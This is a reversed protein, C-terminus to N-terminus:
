LSSLKPFKLHSKLKEGILSFIHQDTLDNQKLQLARM